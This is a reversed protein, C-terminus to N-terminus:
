CLEVPVKLDPIGMSQEDGAWACREFRLRGVGKNIEAIAAIQMTVVCSAATPALLPCPFPRAGKEGGGTERGELRRRGWPTHGIPTGANLALEPRSM